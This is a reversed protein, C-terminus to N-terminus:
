GSGSINKGKVFHQWVLNRHYIGFLNKNKRAPFVSKNQKLLIWKIFAFHARVIALFYGGDGIVLGKTASVTDLFVRFPIKWWKQSWPLNKRAHDPQEQFESLNEQIAEQCPGVVWIIYWQSLVAASNIVWWSYGGAFTSKRRTPLSINM